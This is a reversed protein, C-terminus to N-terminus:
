RITQSTSDVSQQAMESAPELRVKFVWAHNVPLPDPFEEIVVNGDEQHWALDENSGLMRIKSGSAATVGSIVRPASPKELDIAYLFPRV